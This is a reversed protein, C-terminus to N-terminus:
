DLSLCGGIAKEVSRIKVLGGAIMFRQIFRVPLFIIVKKEPSQGTDLTLVTVVARRRVAWCGPVVMITTGKLRQRVIVQGHLSHHTAALHHKDIILFPCYFIDRTLYLRRSKNLYFFPLGNHNGILLHQIARM